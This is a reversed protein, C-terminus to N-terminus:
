AGRMEEKIELALILLDFFVVAYQLDGKIKLNGNMVESYASLDGNLIGSMIEHPCTLFINAGEIEGKECKFNGEGFKVWYNFGSNPVNTQVVNEKLLELEERFEENDVSLLEFGNYIDLISRNICCNECLFNELTMTGCNGMSCEWQNTESNVSISHGCQLPLSELIRGCSSCTLDM